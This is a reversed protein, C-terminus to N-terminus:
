SIHLVNKPPLHLTILEKNQCANTMTDYHM